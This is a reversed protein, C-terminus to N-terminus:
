ALNRALAAFLDHAQIESLMLNIAGTDTQFGLTLTMPSGPSRRTRTVAFVETVQQPQEMVTGKAIGRCYLM